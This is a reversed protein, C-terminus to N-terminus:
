WDFLHSERATHTHTHRIRFCYGFDAALRSKAASQLVSFKCLIGTAIVNEKMRQDVKGKVCACLSPSGNMWNTIALKYSSVLTHNRM